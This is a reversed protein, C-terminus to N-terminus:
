LQSKVLDLSLPLPLSLSLSPSRAIEIDELSAWNILKAEDRRRCTFRTIVPKKLTGILNDFM